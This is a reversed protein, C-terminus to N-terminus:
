EKFVVACATTLTPGVNKILPALKPDYVILGQNFPDARFAPLALTKKYYEELGPLVCGGGTFMVKGVTRKTQIYYNNIAKEIERKIVDLLPTLLRVVDVEGRNQLDLGYSRKIKEARLPDIGLGSAIVQTLDGGATDISHSLRLSGQDVINISTTRGGIDVVAFTGKEKRGFLRAVAISELELQQLNVQAMETIKVYRGITDTPIAVLLVKIKEGLTEVLHWDLTVERLPMPIYQGAQYKIAQVIEKNGMQPLEILSVFSAFGPLAMYAKERGIKSQSLLKKLLLATSEELVKFDSTQIADNLRELHGYKELIGYNSLELKGNTKQLLVVKISTTGIDIGLFHKQGFLRFSM